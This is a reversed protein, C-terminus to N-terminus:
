IELPEHEIAEVLGNGTGVPIDGQLRQALMGMMVALGVVSGVLFSIEGRAFVESNKTALLTAAFGVVGLAWSIATRAYCKLAILAQGLTLAFTFAANGAALMILDSRGLVFGKGFLVKGAIPGVAASGLIGLIGVGAVVITLKKLANKFDQTRGAGLLNALKPLMAAQIAQFLLIPIRATFFGQTFDGAMSRQADTKLAVVALFASYGLVQALVSGTLLWGLAHSLEGWSAAPGATLRALEGRFAVGIALVAALSFAAAFWGPSKVALVALVVAPIARLLAESGMLIGYPKFRANGAVIGRGMHQGFYAVLAVCLWGVLAWNDHFLPGVLYPSTVAILILIVATLMAGLSAARKVIPLGGEGNARRHALARGVEQELPLFFGPALIFTVVWLSNLAAYDPKSLSRGAVSQFVYAMVGAVAMGIGVAFTGEPVAKQTSAILKKARTAM